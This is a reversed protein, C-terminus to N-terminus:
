PAVKDLTPLPASVPSMGSVKRIREENMRRIQEEGYVRVMVMDRLFDGSSPFGLERALRDFDEKVCDPVKCKIESTAKGMHAPLGTSRSMPAHAESLTDFM